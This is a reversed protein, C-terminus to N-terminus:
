ERFARLRTKLGAELKRWRRKVADCSVGLEKALAPFTRGRRRQEWLWHAEQGLEGLAPRLGAMQEEWELIV